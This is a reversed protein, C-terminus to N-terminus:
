RIYGVNKCAGNYNMKNIEGKMPKLTTATQRCQYKNDSIDNDNHWTMQKPFQQKSPHAPGAPSGQHVPSVRWIWREREDPEFDLQAVECAVKLVRYLSSLSWKPCHLSPLSRFCTFAYIFKKTINDGKMLKFQILDRIHIGFTTATAIIKKFMNAYSWLNIIEINQTILQKKGRFCLKTM